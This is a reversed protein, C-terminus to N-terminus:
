YRPPRARAALAAELRRLGAEADEAAAQLALDDFYRYASLLGLPEGIISARVMESVRWASQAPGDALAATGELSFGIEMGRTWRRAAAFIAGRRLRLTVHEPIPV